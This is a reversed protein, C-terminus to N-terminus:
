DCEMVAVARKNRLVEAPKGLVWFVFMLYFILFDRSAFSFDLAYLEAQASMLGVEPRDNVMRARDVLALM